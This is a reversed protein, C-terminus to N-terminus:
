APPNLADNIKTTVADVAATQASDDVPTAAKAILSDAAANLNAIATDFAASMIVSVGIFSVVAGTAFGLAVAIATHMPWVMDGRKTNPLRFWNSSVALTM